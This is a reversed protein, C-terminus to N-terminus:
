NNENSESEGYDVENENGIIGLANGSESEAEVTETVVKDEFQSEYYIWGANSLVLAAILIIVLIWLRRITRELIASYMEHIYKDGM